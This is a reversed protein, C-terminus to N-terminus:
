SRMVGAGLTGVALHQPVLIGAPSSGAAKYATVLMAVDRSAGNSFGLTLGSQLSNYVKYSSQIPFNTADEIEQLIAYGSPQGLTTTGGDHTQAAFVVEDAQATSIAAASPTASTQTAGASIDYPAAAAGTVRAVLGQIGNTLATSCTITAPPTAVIAWATIIACRFTSDWVTRNEPTYVNGVDDSPTNPPIDANAFWYTEVHILDGVQFGTVTVDVTNVAGFNTWSAPVALSM